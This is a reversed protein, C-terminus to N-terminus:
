KNLIMVAQLNGYRRQGPFDIQIKEQLGWLPFAIDELERMRRLARLVQIQLMGDYPVQLTVLQPQLCREKNRCSIAPLHKVNVNCACAAAEHAQQGPDIATDKGPYIRM